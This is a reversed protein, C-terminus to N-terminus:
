IKPIIKRAILNLANEKNPGFPECFAIQDVGQALHERCKEICDQPTGVVTLLDLMKQDVLKAARSEDGNTILSAIKKRREEDIGYKQAISEDLWTVLYACTNRAVNQARKRDDSVSVVLSNVIELEDKRKRQSYALGVEIPKLREPVERAIRETLIVGDAIEGALELGKPSSSGIYIPIKVKSRSLKVREIIFPNTRVSVEKGGFLEQISEVAERLYEVQSTRKFIGFKAVNYPSGLGIGLVARQTKPNRSHGLNSLALFSSAIWAPNRTYFNLIASGFKIKKTNSAISALTVIADSFPSDPGGDPVWVNSYGLKEALTALRLCEGQDWSPEISIGFTDHERAMYSSVKKPSNSISLLIKVELQFQIKEIFESRRRNDSTCSKM